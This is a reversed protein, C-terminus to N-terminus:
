MVELKIQKKSRFEAHRVDPKDDFVRQNCLKFSTSGSFTRMITSPFFTKTSNIWRLRSICIELLDFQCIHRTFIEILWKESGLRNPKNSM